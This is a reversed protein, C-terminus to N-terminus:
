LFKITPRGPGKRPKVYLLNQLDSLSKNKKSTGNRSTIVTGSPKKTKKRKTIEDPRFASGGMTSRQRTAVPRRTPKAGTAAQIQKEGRARTRQAKWPDSPGVKKTGRQSGAGSLYKGKDGLATIVPAKAKSDKSLFRRSFGGSMYSSAKPPKKAPPPKKSTPPNKVVSAKAIAKYHKPEAM